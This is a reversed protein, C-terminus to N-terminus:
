FFKNMTENISIMNGMYLCRNREQVLLIGKLLGTPHNLYLSQSFLHSSSKWLNTRVLFCPLLVFNHYQINVRCRFILRRIREISGRQLPNHMQIGNQHSANKKWRFPDVVFEPLEVTRHVECRFRM